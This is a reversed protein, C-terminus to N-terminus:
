RARFTARIVTFASPRTSGSGAVTLYFATDPLLPGEVQRGQSRTWGVAPIMKRIGEDGFLGNEGAYPNLGAVAIRHSSKLKSVTLHTLRIIASIRDKKARCEACQLREDRPSHRADPRTGSQM